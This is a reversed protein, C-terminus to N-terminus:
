VRGDKKLEEYWLPNHHKIFDVEAYGSKMTELSEREEIVGFYIHAVLGILVLIVSIAHIVLSWRFIMGYLSNTSFELLMPAFFLYLGTAAIALSCFVIMTGLLRQAGNYRGAPPIEFNKMLGFMKALTVTMSWGDRIASMPTLVLVQKLFPIVVSKLNFLTFLAFVVIWAIGIIGHMLALNDNGGFLGQLFEPWAAPVLRVFDGSLIGFGSAVMLAWVAANFWHLRIVKKERVKITAKSM